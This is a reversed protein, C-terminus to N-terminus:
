LQRISRSFARIAAGISAPRGLLLLQNRGTLRLKYVRGIPPSTNRISNAYSGSPQKGDIEILAADLSDEIDQLSKATVSGYVRWGAAVQMLLSGEQARTITLADGNVSTLYGIESNDATPQVDPPCITVPMNNAFVEGDGPMLVFDQGSADAPATLVTGIAFNKHTDFM